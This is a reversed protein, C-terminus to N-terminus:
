TLQRPLPLSSLVPRQPVGTCGPASTPHSWSPHDCGQALSLQLLKWLPLLLSLDRLCCQGEACPHNPGRHPVLPLLTCGQQCTSLCLIVSTPDHGVTLGDGGHGSFWGTPHEKGHCGGAGARRLCPLSHSLFRPPAATGCGGESGNNSEGACLIAATHCPQPPTVCGLLLGMAAGRPM